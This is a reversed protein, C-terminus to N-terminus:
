VLALQQYQRVRNRGTKKADSLAQNARRMVADIAEDANRLEFGISLTCSLAGQDVPLSQQEVATRIEEAKRLVARGDELPLFIAFEANGLRAACGGHVTLRKLARAVMVLIRDGMLFGYTDNIDKFRDIQMLLVAGNGPPTDSTFMELFSRRNFLGTLEDHALIRALEQNLEHVHLIKQAGWSSALPAVFLPVFISPLLAQPSLGTPSLISTLILSGVLSTVTIVLVFVLRERSNRIKVRFFGKGM